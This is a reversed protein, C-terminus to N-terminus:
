GALPRVLLGSMPGLGNINHPYKAIRMVEEADWWATPVIAVSRAFSARDDHGVNIKEKRGIELADAEVQDEGALVAPADNKGVIEPL